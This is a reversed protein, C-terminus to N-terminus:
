FGLIENITALKVAEDKTLSGSLELIYNESNWIVLSNTYDGSVYEVGIGNCGNIDVDQVSRGRTTLHTQFRSKVTQEFVLYQDLANKYVVSISIKSTVVEYMEYGDPVVSLRYEKEITEPSGGSDFSFIHTNSIYETGRFSGSVFVTASGVAVAMFVIIMIALIIRKRFGVPSKLRSTIFESVPKPRYKAFVGFSRQIKRKYGASFEPLEVLEAESFEEEYYMSMLDGISYSNDM